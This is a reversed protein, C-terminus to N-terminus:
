PKRAFKTDPADKLGALESSEGQNFHQHHQDHNAEGGREDVRAQVAIRACLELALAPPKARRDLM